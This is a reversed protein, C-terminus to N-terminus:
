PTKGEEEKVPAPRPPFFEDGVVPRYPKSRIEKGPRNLANIIHGALLIPWPGDGDLGKELRFAADQLHMSMPEYAIMLAALHCPPLNSEGADVLVIGAEAYAELVLGACSFQHYPREEGPWRVHPRIIYQDARFRDRARGGWRGVAQRRAQEAEFESRVQRVFAAISRKELEELGVAGHCQGLPYPADVLLPPLMHSVRPKVPAQESLTLDQAALAVQAVFEAQQPSDFGLVDFVEVAVGANGIRQAPM